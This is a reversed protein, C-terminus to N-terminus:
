SGSEAVRPPMVDYDRGEVPEGFIARMDSVTPPADADLADLAEDVAREGQAIWAEQAAESAAERAADQMEGDRNLVANAFAHALETDHDCLAAFDLWRQYDAVNARLTAANEVADALEEQADALAQTRKEVREDALFLRNQHGALALRLKQITSEHFTM